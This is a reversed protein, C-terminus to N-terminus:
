FKGGDKALLKGNEVQNAQIQQFTTANQPPSTPAGLNGIHTHVIIAQLMAILVAELDEGMVVTQFEGDKGVQIKGNLVRVEYTGSSYVSSEGEDVSPRNADRHGIVMRNGPHEGIRAVVSLCGQIARSVFGYPHSVPRDKIGDQGPFLNNITETSTTTNGTVGNLIVNLKTEILRDIYRRLESDIM